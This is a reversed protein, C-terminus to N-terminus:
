RVRCSTDVLTSHQTHQERCEDQQCEPVHEDSATHSASEAPSKQSFAAGCCRRRTSPSPGRLPRMAARLPVPTAAICLGSRCVARGARAVPAPVLAPQTHAWAVGLASAVASAM